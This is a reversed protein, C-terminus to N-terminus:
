IHYSITRMIEETQETNNFRNPSLSCYTVLNSLTLNYIEGGEKILLCIINMYIEEFKFSTMEQLVSNIAKNSRVAESNETKINRTSRTRNAENESQGVRNLLNTNGEHLSRLSNLSNHPRHFCHLSSPAMALIHELVIIAAIKISPLKSQSIIRHNHLLNGCIRFRHSSLFDCM